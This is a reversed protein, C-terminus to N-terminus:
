NETSLGINITNQLLSFVQTRVVSFSTLVTRIGSDLPFRRGRNCRHLQLGRIGNFPFSTIFQCGDMWREMEGDRMGGDVWGDMWEDMRVGMCVYM